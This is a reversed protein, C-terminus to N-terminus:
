RSCRRLEGVVVVVERRAGALDEQLRVLADADGGVVAEDLAVGAADVDVVAGVRQDVESGDVELSRGRVVVERRGGDRCAEREALAHQADAGAVDVAVDPGSRVPGTFRAVTATCAGDVPLGNGRPLLDHERGVLLEVVQVRVDAVDGVRVRARDADQDDEVVHAGLDGRRDVVGVDGGVADRHSAVSCACIAASAVLVTSPRPRSAEAAAARHLRDVALDRRVDHERLRVRRDGVAHDVIAPPTARRPACSPRRDVRRHERRSRAGAVERDADREGEVRDAPRRLVDEEVDDVGDEAVRQMALASPAFACASVNAQIESVSTM